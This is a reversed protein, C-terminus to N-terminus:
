RPLSAVSLGSMSPLSSLTNRCNSRMASTPAASHPSQHFDTPLLGSTASGCGSLWYYGATCCCTAAEACTRMGVRVLIYYLILASLYKWLVAGRSNVAEPLRVHTSPKRSTRATKLLPASYLQPHQQTHGYRWNGNVRGAGSCVIQKNLCILITALRPLM